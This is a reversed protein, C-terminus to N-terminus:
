NFKEIKEIDLFIYNYDLNQSISFNIYEQPLKELSSNSLHILALKKENDSIIKTVTGTLDSLNVSPLDPSYVNKKITIYDYVSISSLM